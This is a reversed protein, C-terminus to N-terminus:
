EKEKLIKLLAKPELIKFAMGLILIVIGSLAIQLWSLDTPIKQIFYTVFISVIALAFFRLILSINVRFKFIYQALILQALGMFIQTIFTALAAGVVEYTPILIFNLVINLVLSCLALINLQKLSGNATLLTGFVYTITMGLFGFILYSFSKSTKSSVTDYIFNLLENGFFFVVISTAIGVFLLLKSAIEVTESLNIKEKITRAFIPLLLSAFLLAFMNFADLLRFGKAYDAASHDGVLRELMVSDIRSYMMMLLILLAYPLSRKLIQRNFKWSWKRRPDVGNKLTLLGNIIFSIAYALTQALVFHFINVELNLFDGWLLIAGFIIMLIRDLVSMIADTKFQHFGKFNSTFYQNMGVLFQNFILLGLITFDAKEYGSIFAVILTIFAYAAFLLGRLNVIQIVNKKGLQPHRAIQRVNYNNVGFDLIINFLFSLNLLAFYNGYQDGLENQFQADIGFIYFPKVLLNILLLFGLNVLFKRQM